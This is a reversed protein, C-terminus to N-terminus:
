ERRRGFGRLWRSLRGPHDPELAPAADPPQPQPVAAGPPESEPAAPAAAPEDAHFDNAQPETPPIAVVIGSSNDDAQNEEAQRLLWAVAERPAPESLGTQFESESLANSLGDSCLLFRDGPLWPWTECDVQVDPGRGLARSLMHRLRHRRAVEQDLGLDETIHLHDRTLLKLEGNRALYARSDGVHAIIARDELIVCAVVTCGMGARDLDEGAEQYIRTNALQIAAVLSEGPESPAAYYEKLLTEVALRSAIEGASHGGMGDCVVYLCGRRRRVEPDSPERKGLSDENNRRRGIYSGGYSRVASANSPSM